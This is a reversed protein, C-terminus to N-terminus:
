PTSEQQRAARAKRAAERADPNLAQRMAERSLGTVRILDAQRRGSALAERLRQDRREMAQERDTEYDTIIAQIENDTMPM